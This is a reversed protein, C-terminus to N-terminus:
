TLKLCGETSRGRFLQRFADRFRVSMVNYLIPNVACNIYVLTKSFFIYWDPDWKDQAFSNYTVMFRYPLWCAGFVIAVIALMKILLIIESKLPRKDEKISASSQRLTLAIHSYLVIYLIMPIAYFITLDSLFMVKYTLHERQLKFNCTYEGGKEQLAALYLWPSNYLACCSWLILIIHQARRVTCIYRAKLPYCIGIYREITFAAISTSSTNIALYPLYSFLACGISGFIYDSIYISITIQGNLVYIYQDNFHLHGLESPTTVLFFLCDSAALSVLYCNTPSIMHPVKFVVFIVMINGTVGILTLVVFISTMIIRVHAPWFDIINPKVVGQEFFHALIPDSLNM